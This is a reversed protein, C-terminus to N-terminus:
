KTQSKQIELLNFYDFVTMKNFDIDIKAFALTTKTAYLAKLTKAELSLVNVQNEKKIRSITKVVTELYGDALLLIM